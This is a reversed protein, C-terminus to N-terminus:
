LRTHNTLIIERALPKIYIGATNHSPNSSKDGWTMANCRTRGFRLDPSYRSTKTNGEGGSIRPGCVVSNM